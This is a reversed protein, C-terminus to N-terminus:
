SVFILIGISVCCLLLSLAVEISVVKPYLYRNNYWYYSLYIIYLIIIIMILHYYYFWQNRQHQVELFEYLENITGKHIHHPYRQRYQQLEFINSFEYDKTYYDIKQKYKDVDNCDICQNM